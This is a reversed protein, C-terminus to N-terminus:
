HSSAATPAALLLFMTVLCASIWPRAGQFTKSPIDRGDLIWALVVFFLPSLYVFHLIDARTLIVSLLLGTFAANLLIFYASRADTSRRIATVVTWRTLLGIAILPPGTDPLVFQSAASHRIQRDLIPASCRKGSPMQGTKIVTFCVIRRRITVFPGSCDALMPSVAHQASFYVLTIALPCLVGLTAWVLHTKYVGGNATL